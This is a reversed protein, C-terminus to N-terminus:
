TLEQELYIIEYCQITDDEKLSDFGQLIIGCEFGKLAEKVDEKVRKISAIPGKWIEEGGRIVRALTGRRVLGETVQCGAINGLQSSKFITKVSAEGLDKEEPIKDLLSVMISRIDDVAHYIIDHLRIDTKTQKILTEAHNEVCTHFGLIVAKSTFAHQIDSESIEGVGELIFNVDVKKSPLKRLSTKLAELSGQVDAKLILNLTKKESSDVKNQLFTEMSAKKSQQLLSTKHGEDRKQSIEKAEKENKVVIFDSGALPLGSLGTIKVPSSPGAEILSKGHEDHMTKVRAYLHGFVLSDGIHLTGNQVLITAVAGLGKHMESEIVSGRARENKNAKLELVESQLSLMELLSDIGEGTTASCNVTIISGGWAESLLNRESLQRHVVDPDFGPKDCKNIAVVLSVGAEKAQNIAEVTQAKIGDDGAIVLVVIDTVGAGRERMSSFAEHGPTDLITLPGASTTCKFAGIHQTISGAESATVNSKRIADILSTKGHDVHGMFAIIPPRLELLSDDTESVEDKVTKDTVRIREEETTDITLECQFEHGLLQVTTEDDLYDNLTIIVGQMFLKAVLQSAKLKMESALDKVTIPLRITLEKPRIVEEPSKKKLKVARRRKWHEDNSERLGQRDRSDFVKGQITKKQGRADKDSGFGTTPKRHPQHQQPLAKVPPSAPPPSSPRSTGPRFDRNGERKFPPRSGATAPGDRRPPHSPAGERRQYPPGGGERKPPASVEKRPSYGPRFSAPDRKVFGALMRKKPPESPKETEPTKKEQSAPTPGKPAPTEQEPKKEVAKVRPKEEEKQISTPTEAVVKEPALKPTEKEEKKPRPKKPRSLKIAEALQTNKINLKLNKAL